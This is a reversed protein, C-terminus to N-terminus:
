FEYHLGAELINTIDSQYELIFGFRFGVAGMTTVTYLQAANKIDTDRYKKLYNEFGIKQDFSSCAYIKKYVDLKNKYKWLDSDWDMMFENKDKITIENVVFKFKGQVGSANTAEIGMNDTIVMQHLALATFWSTISYGATINIEDANESDTTATGELVDEIGFVFNEIEKEFEIKHEFASINDTINFTRNLEVKLDFIDGAFSHAGALLIISLLLKMPERETIGRGLYFSYIGM